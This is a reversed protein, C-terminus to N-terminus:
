AKSEQAIMPKVANCGGGGVGIVKIRPTTAPTTRSASASTEKTRWQAHGKKIKLTKRDEDLDWGDNLVFIVEAAL